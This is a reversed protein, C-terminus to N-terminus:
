GESSILIFFYSPLVEAAAKGRSKKSRHQLYKWCVTVFRFDSIVRAGYIVFGVSSLHLCHVACEVIALLTAASFHSVSPLPSSILMAPTVPGM